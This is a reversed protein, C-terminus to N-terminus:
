ICYHILKRLYYLCFTLFSSFSHCKDKFKFLVCFNLSLLVSTNLSACHAQLSRTAQIGRYRATRGKRCLNRNFNGIDIRKQYVQKYNTSSLNTKSIKRQCAYCFQSNDLFIFRICSCLPQVLIFITNQSKKKSFFIPHKM